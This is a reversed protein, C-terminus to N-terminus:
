SPQKKKGLLSRRSQASRIKGQALLHKEADRHDEGLRYRDTGILGLVRGGGGGIRQQPEGTLWNERVRDKLSAHSRQYLGAESAMQAWDKSTLQVSGKETYERSRESLKLMLVQAANRQRGGTRRDGVPAPLLRQNVLPVLMKDKRGMEFVADMDLLSGLKITLQARNGPSAHKERWTILGAGRMGPIDYTFSQLVNLVDTIPVNDRKTMGALGRLANIGGEIVIRDPASGGAQFQQFQIRELEYLVLWFAAKEIPNLKGTILRLVKETASPVLFGTANGNHDLVRNDRVEVAGRAVDTFGRVILTPIAPTHIKELRDVAQDWKPMLRDGCIVRALMAVAHCARTDRVEKHKSSNPELWLDWHQGNAYAERAKKRQQKAIGAGTAGISEIHDFFAADLWSMGKVETPTARSKPYRRCVGEPGGATVRSNSLPELGPWTPFKGTTNMGDPAAHRIAEIMDDWHSRWAQWADFTIQALHSPERGHFYNERWRELNEFLPKRINSKREIHNGVTSFFCNRWELVFGTPDETPLDEGGGFLYYLKESVLYDTRGGRKAM